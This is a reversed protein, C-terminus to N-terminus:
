NYVGFFMGLTKWLSRKLKLLLTVASSNTQSAKSSICLVSSSRKWCISLEVSQTVDWIELTSTSRSCVQEQTLEYHRTWLSCTSKSLEKIIYSLESFSAMKGLQSGDSTSNKQRCTRILLRDNRNLLYKPFRVLGLVILHIPARKLSACSVMGLSIRSYMQVRRNLLDHLWMMPRHTVGVIVDDVGM